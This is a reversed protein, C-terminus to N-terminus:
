YQSASVEVQKDLAAAPPDRDCAADSSKALSLPALSPLPRGESLTLADSATPTGSMSPSRALVAQSVSRFVNALILCLASCRAGDSCGMRPVMPSNPSLQQIPAVKSIQRRLAVIEASRNLKLQVEERSLPAAPALVSASVDLTLPPGGSQGPSVHSGARKFIVGPDLESGIAPSSPSAPVSSLPSGSSPSRHLSLTAHHTQLWAARERQFEERQAHVAAQAAAADVRTADLLATLTTVRQTLLAASEAHREKDAARAAQETALAHTLGHIQTRAVSLEAELSEVDSLPLAPAGGGSTTLTAPPPSFFGAPYAELQAVAFHLAELLRDHEKTLEEHSTELEAIRARAAALEDAAM